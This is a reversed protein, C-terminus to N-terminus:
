TSSRKLSQRLQARAEHLRRWVTGAPIELAKAADVGSLGGLEVMLIVERHEPSLRGVAREILWKQEDVAVDDEPTVRPEVPAHKFAELLRRLRAFSRRRRRALQAAVGLLFPKAAADREFSAAARAATLFTEQVLDAADAPDGLLREAFARVSAHYRDFLEGLPGLDGNAMAQFLEGDTAQELQATGADRRRM